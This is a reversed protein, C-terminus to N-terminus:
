STAIEKEWDIASKIYDEPIEYSKALFMMSDGASVMGAIDSTPIRTGTICSRGFQVRPHLLINKRPTWSYAIGKEDFTLGHMDILNERVMEIFALQGGKNAVLLISAIEAFIHLAGKKEAWIPETAFPRIHGTHKRLLKEAKRIDQFSYNLARLFAIVRMSVLDEFTILMQRGPIQILKPDTLGQRIWRILNANHIQYNSNITRVDPYLYRAAESIEYSGLFEKSATKM